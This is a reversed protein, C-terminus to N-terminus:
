NLRYTIKINPDEKECPYKIAFNHPNNVAEMLLVEERDEFKDQCSVVAPFIDLDKPDYLISFDDIGVWSADQLNNNELWLLVEKLRAGPRNGNELSPTKDIIKKAIDKSFYSRLENLSHKHRWASSIVIKIDHDNELKRITNEFNKLFAFHQNREDSEEKLPFFHHLVGDFDLFIYTIKKM